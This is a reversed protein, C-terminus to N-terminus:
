VLSAIPSQSLVELQPRPRPAGPEQLEGPVDTFSTPQITPGRPPLSPSPLRRRPPPPPLSARSPPHRRPPPPPLRGHPPPLARPPDLPRFLLPSIHSGSRHPLITM